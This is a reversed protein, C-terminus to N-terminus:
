VIRKETGCVCKFPHSCMPPDASTVPAPKVCGRAWHSHSRQGRNPRVRETWRTEGGQLVPKHGKPTLLATHIPTFTAGVGGRGVEEPAGRTHEDRGDPQKRTLLTIRRTTGHSRERSEQRYKVTSRAKYIFTERILPLLKPYVQTPANWKRGAEM